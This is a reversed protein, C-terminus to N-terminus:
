LAAAGAILVCGTGIVGAMAIFGQTMVRNMAKNDDHLDKVAVRLEKMGGEVQDFRREVETFREDVRDFRRDVEQFREDIRDFRRDVAQFREDVLKFRDDVLDFREDMRESLHDLHEDTWTERTMTPMLMAYRKTKVFCSM